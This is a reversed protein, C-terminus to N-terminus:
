PIRNEWQLLARDWRRIVSSKWRNFSIQAHTAASWGFFRQIWGYKWSLPPPRLRGGLSAALRELEVVLDLRVPFFYILSAQLYKLCANRARESDEVSRLYGVPLQTSLLQAEIKKDSGHVASLSDFGRRYFVRSEQVFRISESALVVRSFYEGDDDALLRNNWPGALDTLERSVLWTATQMSLNEGLKRMLWERPDLDGWLRTPEFRAKHPRYIFTGWAASLLTRKSSDCELAEMQKTIKDPALLDDADLWQIYDGHCISYAYNRTAAAGQNARSIVTVGAVIYRRAVALTGDTSGDDVVIIEKRMWTQALASQITDAIWEQANYAPILISVLASM